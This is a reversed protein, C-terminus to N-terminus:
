GKSPTGSDMVERRIDGFLDPLMQPWSRELRKEFTNIVKVDGTKNEVAMGGAIDGDTEIEAEPYYKKALGSDRPNVTVKRWEYSPLDLVLRGFIEGYNDDRLFGLCSVALFYLRTSLKDESELKIIKARSEAELLIKRVEGESSQGYSGEQRMAELRSSLNARIMGAEEESEKWIERIKTEAEKRLSEILEDCGM